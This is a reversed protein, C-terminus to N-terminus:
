SGEDPLHPLTSVSQLLSTTLAESRYLGNTDPYGKLTLAYM